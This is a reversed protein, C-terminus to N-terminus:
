RSVGLATRGGVATFGLAANMKANEAELKRVREQLDFLAKTQMELARRMENKDPFRKELFNVLSKLLKIM